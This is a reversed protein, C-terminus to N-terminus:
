YIPICPFDILNPALQCAGATWVAYYVPNRDADRKIPIFPTTKQVYNVTYISRKLQIKQFFIM